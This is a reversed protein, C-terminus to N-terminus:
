QLLIIRTTRGPNQNNSTRQGTIDFSETTKCQLHCIFFQIFVYRVKFNNFLEFRNGLSAYSQTRTDLQATLNDVITLFVETRFRTKPDMNTDFSERKEDAFLTPKRNRKYTAAQMGCMKTAENEYHDFNDRKEELFMKLTQLQKVAALFDLEEKQLNSSVKDISMLLDNWLVTLFATDFKGLQKSLGEAAVRSEPTQSIDQSLNKLVLEFEKYGNSLAHVADARTSWRTQSLNKPLTLTDSNKNQKRREKNENKICEKLLGWRYTSGAFFSFLGQLFSFYRTVEPCSKEAAFVGVLNLSHAACPVYDAKNNESKIRAQLGTYYGSMNSANDYSQGRCNEIDLNLNQLLTLVAQQLSEAKHGVGPLLQVLREKACADNLSVYRLVVALQDTHSMDPTSDVILSFYHAENVEKIIQNLVKTGMISIFEDCTDSSVYSVNGSGKNGYKEIHHSLFPDYESLLELCGLFLGNSLSGFTQNDGRFPLGRLALFRVVSVVRTLVERWYKVEKEYQSLLLTDVSATKKRCLFTCINKRHDSSQEHSKVLVSAHKWDNFGTSFATQKSEIQFLLCPVCFVLGKSKSYLLWDRNYTEGNPLVCSFIKDSLTRKKDPYIRVSNSFDINLNQKVNTTLITKLVYEDKTNWTAPDDIDFLFSVSSTTTPKTCGPKFNLNITGTSTSPLVESVSDDTETTVLEASQYVGDSSIPKCVEERLTPGEEDEPSELAVTVVPVTKQESFFSSIKPVKQLVKESDLLKKAARKRFESGSPKKSM